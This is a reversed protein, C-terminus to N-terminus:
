NSDIAEFASCRATRLDVGKITWESPYGEDKTQYILTALLIPCSDEGSDTLRYKEERKCRDCWRSMFEMGETGNSPQYPRRQESM